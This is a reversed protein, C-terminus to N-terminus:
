RSLKFRWANLKGTDDASFLLKTQVPHWMHTVIGQVAEGRHGDHCFVRGDSEGRQYDHIEVTRDLGSLSLLPDSPSLHVTPKQSLNQAKGSNYSYIKHTTRLDRVHLSGCSSAVAVIDPHHESADMTWMGSTDQMQIEQVASERRPDYVLVSGEDRLCIFLKEGVCKVESVRDSKGKFAGSFMIPKHVKESSLDLQILNSLSDGAYVLGAESVALAAEGELGQQLTSSLRIM